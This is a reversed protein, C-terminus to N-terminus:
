YKMGEASLGYRLKTAALQGMRGEAKGRTEKEEVEEVEEAEEEEVKEEDEMEEKVEGVDEETLDSEDDDATITM